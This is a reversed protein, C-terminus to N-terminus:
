RKSALGLERKNYLYIGLLALPITRCIFCNFFMKLVLSYEVLEGDALLSTVDFKQLPIVLLLMVEALIESFKFGPLKVDSELLLVSFTGIALYAASMFVATPMSFIAGFVCGIGSLVALSIIITLMARAYNEPFGAVRILLKPGDGPQIYQTVQYDDFNVLAIYMKGDRTVGHWTEPLAIENFVGSRLQEPVQTLPYLFIQGAGNKETELKGPTEGPSTQPVGLQWWVKTLRQNDNSVNNLYLRYRLSFPGKETPPIDSYEWIKLTQYPIQSDNAIAQQRSQEKLEAPDYNAATSGLKQLKEAMINRTEAEIDARKPMFNRRGALIENRIIKQDNESFGSNDLRYNILMYIATMAIALLLVILSFVGAWKALYITPRSVPKTVVMHLQRNEQDAIMTYCGLWIAACGTLFTVGGLSYFLLVRMFNAANTEVIAFPITLAWLLLLLLLLLFLKSRFAQKWTLCIIAFFAKM